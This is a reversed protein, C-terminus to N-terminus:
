SDKNTNHQGYRLFTDLTTTITQNTSRNEQLLKLMEENQEMEQKRLVNAEAQAKGNELFAHTVSDSIAKNEKDKEDLKKWLVNLAYVSLILASSSGTAIQIIM